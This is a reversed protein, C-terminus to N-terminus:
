DRSRVQALLTKRQIEPDNLETYANCLEMGGAYLEFRQALDPNAPCPKALPSMIMPHNTIFTPQILNPELLASALKDLLRPITLPASIPIEKRACLDLIFRFMKLFKEPNLLLLINTEFRLSLPLINPYYMPTHASGELSDRKM